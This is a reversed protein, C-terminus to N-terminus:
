LSKMENDQLVLTHCHTNIQNINRPRALINLSVTDKLLGQENQLLVFSICFPGRINFSIYSRASRKMVKVCPSVISCNDEPPHAM